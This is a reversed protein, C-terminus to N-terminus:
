VFHRFMNKICLCDLSVMEQGILCFFFEIDDLIAAIFLIDESLATNVVILAPMVVILTPMVVILNLMLVILTLM